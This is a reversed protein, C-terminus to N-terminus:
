ESILKNITADVGANWQDRKMKIHYAEHFLAFELQEDTVGALAVVSASAPNLLGLLEFMKDRTM